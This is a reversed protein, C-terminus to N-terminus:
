EAAVRAEFGTSSRLREYNKEFIRMAEDDGWVGYSGEVYDPVQIGDIHWAHNSVMFRRREAALAWTDAREIAAMEAAEPQRIGLADYIQRQVDQEFSRLNMDYRDRLYQKLPRSVDGTYAEHSDHLLAYLQQMETGGETQVIEMVVVSHEAVTIPVSSHGNFRITRSLSRAIDVININNKDRDAPDFFFQTGSYTQMWHSM